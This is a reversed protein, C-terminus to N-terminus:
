GACRKYRAYVSETKKNHMLHLANWGQCVSVKLCGTSKNVHEGSDVKAKLKKDGCLYARIYAETTVLGFSLGNGVSYPKPVKIQKGKVFVKMQMSGLDAVEAYVDKSPKWDKHAFSIRTGVQVRYGAWCSMTVGTNKLVKKAVRKSSKGSQARKARRNVPKPKPKDITGGAALHENISEQLSASQEAKSPEVVAGPIGIRNELESM